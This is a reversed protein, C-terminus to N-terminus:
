GEAPKFINDIFLSNCLECYERIKDELKRKILEEEESNCSYCAAVTKKAEDALHDLLADHEPNGRKLEMEGLSEIKKKLKSYSEEMKIARERLDTGEERSENRRDNLILNEPNKLKANM